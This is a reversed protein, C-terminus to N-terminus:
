RQTLRGRWFGPRRSHHAVAMVVFQNGREVFVVDYPFRKLVMRCVGLSGARGPVPTAPVIDEQLLDLAADLAREFDAGLGSREHEYWAAAEGAELAAVELIRVVRM